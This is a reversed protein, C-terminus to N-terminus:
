CGKLLSRQASAEIEAGAHATMRCPKGLQDRHVVQPTLLQGRELRALGRRRARDLHRERRLVSRMSALKSASDPRGTTTNAYQHLFTGSGGHRDRDVVQM